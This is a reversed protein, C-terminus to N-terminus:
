LKFIKKIIWKFLFYPTAVFAGFIMLCIMLNIVVGDDKNAFMGVIMIIFVPSSLIAFVINYRHYIKNKRREQEEFDLKKETRDIIDPVEKIWAQKCSVAVEDCTGKIENISSSLISNDLLSDGNVDIVQLTNPLKLTEKTDLLKNEIAIFLENTKAINGKLLWRKASLMEGENMLSQGAELCTIEDDCIVAIKICSDAKTKGDKIYENLLTTIEKNLCTDPLNLKKLYSQLNGREEYVKQLYSRTSKGVKAYYQFAVGFKGECEAIFGLLRNADQDDALSKDGFYQAAKKFDIASNIGLLHSMGMQFCSESDGKEAKSEIEKGNTMFQIVLDKISTINKAM